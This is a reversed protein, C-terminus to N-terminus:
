RIDIPYDHEVMSNMSLTPTTDNKERM